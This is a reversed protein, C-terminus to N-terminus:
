IFVATLIPVRVQGGRGQGQRQLLHAQHGHQQQSNSISISISDDPRPLSNGRLRKPLIVCCVVLTPEAAAPFFTLPLPIVHTAREGRRPNRAASEAKKGEGGHQVVLVAGKLDYTPAACSPELSFFPAFIGAHVCGQTKQLSHLCAMNSTVEMWPLNRLM